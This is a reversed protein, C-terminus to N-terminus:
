LNLMSAVRVPLKYMKDEKINAILTDTLKLEKKLDCIKYSINNFLMKSEKSADGNEKYIQSHRYIEKVREEGDEIKEPEEGVKAKLEGLKVSCDSIKSIVEQKYNVLKDKIQSGKKDIKSFEENYSLEHAISKQIEDANNFFYLVSKMQDAREKRMEHLFNSIEM